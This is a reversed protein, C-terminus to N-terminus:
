GGRRGDQNARPLAHRPVTIHQRTASKRPTTEGRAARRREGPRGCTAMDLVSGACTAFGDVTSNTAAASTEAASVAECDSGSRQRGIRGPQHLAEEGLDVLRGRHTTHSAICTDPGAVGTTSVRSGTSHTLKSPQDHARRMGTNLRVPHMSSPVRSRCRGYRSTAYLM